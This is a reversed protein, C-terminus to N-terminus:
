AALEEVGTAIAKFQPKTMTRIAGQWYVKAPFSIQSALLVPEAYCRCNPCGGAAYHGLTSKEGVLAEPDPDFGWPVVVGNMKKHSLRVRVDESTKWIYWEAGVDESRAKTLALSTKATETRAILQVKSKLLQPFRTRAIKAVTSARAGNLQAQEIEHVLRSAQELPVSKIYAANSAILERMRRGVPGELEKGLLRRLKQSQGWKSAAQRWTKQNLTNQAQVMRTALFEAAEDVDKQKSREAIALLWEQFTQEPLKIPLVRRALKSIASAYERELRKTPGFTQGKGAM